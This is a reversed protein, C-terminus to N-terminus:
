GIQEFIKKYEQYKPGVDGEEKYSDSSLGFVVLGVIDEIPIKTPPTEALAASGNMMANLSEHYFWNQVELIKGPKKLSATNKIKKGCLKAEKLRIVGVINKINLRFFANTFIFVHGQSNKQIVVACNEKQKAYNAVDLNDSKIAALKINNKHRKIKFIKAKNEFEAKADILWGKEKNQLADIANLTFKIVDETKDGRKYLCKILGALDGFNNHLGATDDEQIYRLLSQLEPNNEIGLKKAVLLTTCDGTNHHDFTGGEIDFSIINSKEWEKLIEPSPNEGAKWVALKVNKIGKFHNEGYNLILWYAAIPDLHPKNPLIIKTIEKM